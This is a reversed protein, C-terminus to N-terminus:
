KKHERENLVNNVIRRMKEEFRKESEEANRRDREFNEKESKETEEIMKKTCEKCVNGKSPTFFGRDKFDFRKRCYNCTFQEEM